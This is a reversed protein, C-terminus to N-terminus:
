QKNSGWVTSRKHPSILAERTKGRRPQKKGGQGEPMGGKPPFPGEVTDKM